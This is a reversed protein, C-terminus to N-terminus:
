NKIQTVTSFPIALPGCMLVPGNSTAQVTDVRGTSFTTAPTTNGATDTVNIAYTYVGPPLNAGAAGLTVNLDGPNVVGLSTTGVVTGSADTVTLSATGGAGGITAEVAVTKPDTGTPVVVQNGTAVVTKGLTGMAASTQISAILTNTDTAQGTLATNIDQLQELSSFQALEAAMQDSQTPNLPDQNQMQAVLLKLFDDKGLAGLPNDPTSPTGSSPAATGVPTTPLATTTGQIATM